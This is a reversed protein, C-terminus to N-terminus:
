EEDEQQKGLSRYMLEEAIKLLTWGDRRHDEKDEVEHSGSIFEKQSETM